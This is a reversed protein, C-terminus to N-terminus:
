NNLAGAAVWKKVKAVECASLTIGTPPMPSFGPTHAINNLLNGSVAATKVSNYDVLSGGPASSSNHCGTCYQQMLPAIAAAYTYSNSDCASGSCAGSDVAGALIWRRLLDIKAASLPPANKPMADEDNSNLTVSEFIKSAAPNGPVIGKKMINTYNDLIYGKEHSQANHCNSQTCNAIFIPLIDREFCIAPDNTQSTVPKVYPEHVCSNIAIVVLFLVMLVYIRNYIM